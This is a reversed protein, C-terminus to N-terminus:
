TWPALMGRNPTSPLRKAWCLETLTTVLNEARLSWAGLEFNRHMAPSVTSHPVGKSTEGGGM